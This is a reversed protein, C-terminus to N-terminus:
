NLLRIPAGITALVGIIWQEVLRGLSPYSGDQQLLQLGFVRRSPSRIARGTVTRWPHFSGPRFVQRMGASNRQESAKRM